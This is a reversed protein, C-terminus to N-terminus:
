SSSAHTILLHIMKLFEPPHLSASGVVVGSIHKLSIFDALNAAKVSGGYLVPAQPALAKIQAAVQEVQYPSAPQGQGIPGVPQSIAEPPEYMVILQRLQSSSFLALQDNFNTRDVAIIPTIQNTLAQCAKKFVTQLDETFFRRRESHGLLAYSVLGTLQSAATEGTYPGSPYLSLDQVGLAFHPAFPPKQFADALLPLHFFSPCVVIKLSPPLSVPLRPKLYGLWQRAEALTKNAKWNAVLYFM